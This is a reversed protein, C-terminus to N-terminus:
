FCVLASCTLVAATVQRVVLCEACVGQVHTGQEKTFAFDNSTDEEEIAVDSVMGESLCFKIEM